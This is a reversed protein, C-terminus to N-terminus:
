RWNVQYSKVHCGIFTRWWYVLDHTSINQNEADLCFKKFIVAIGWYCVGDSALLWLWLTTASHETYYHTIYRPTPRRDQVSVWEGCELWILHEGPEPEGVSESEAPAPRSWSTTAWCQVRQVCHVHPEPKLKCDLQCSNKHLKEIRILKGKFVVWIWCILLKTYGAIVFVM